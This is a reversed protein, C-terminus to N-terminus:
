KKRLILISSNKYTKFASNKPNVFPKRDFDGIKEKDVARSHQIIEFENGFLKELYKPSYQTYTLDPFYLDRKSIAHPYSLFVVGKDGISAAIKNKFKKMTGKSLYMLTGVSFIMNFPADVKEQLFDGTIFTGKPVEDIALKIMGPTIDIGHKEFRGDLNKLFLGPGCGIDLVKPSEVKVLKQALDLESHIDSLLENMEPTESYGAIEQLTKTNDPNHDNQYNYTNIYHAFWDDLKFFILINNFIINNLVRKNALKIILKKM